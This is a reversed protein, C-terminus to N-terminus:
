VDHAVSLGDTAVTIVDVIPPSGRLPMRVARAGPSTVSVPRQPSCLAVRISLITGYNRVPRSGTMRDRRSPGLSPAARRYPATTSSPAVMGGDAKSIRAGSRAASNGRRALSSRGHGPDRVIMVQLAKVTQMVFQVPKAFLDVGGAVGAKVPALCRLTTRV